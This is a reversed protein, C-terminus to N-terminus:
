PAITARPRVSLPGPRLSTSVPPTSPTEGQSTLWQVGGGKGKSVKFARTNSRVYNAVRERIANFNAPAVEINEMTYHLIANMGLTSVNRDRFAREVAKSIVDNDTKESLIYAHLDQTFKLHTAQVDVAGAQNRVAYTSVDFGKTTETTTNSAM